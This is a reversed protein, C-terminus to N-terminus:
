RGLLSVYGNTSDSGSGASSRGFGNFESAIEEGGTTVVPESPSSLLAAELTDRPDIVGKWFLSPIDALLM